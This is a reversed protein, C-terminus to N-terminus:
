FIYVILMYFKTVISIESKFSFYESLLIRGDVDLFPMCCFRARCLIEFLKIVKIDCTLLKNYGCNKKSEYNKLCHCNKM